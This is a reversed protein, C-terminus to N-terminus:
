MMWKMIEHSYFRPDVTRMKLAGPRRPLNVGSMGWGIWSFPLWLAPHFPSQPKSITNALCFRWAMVFGSTNKSKQCSMQHLEWWSGGPAAAQNEHFSPKRQFPAINMPFSIILWWCRPYIHNHTLVRAGPHYRFYSTLPHQNKWIHYYYTKVWGWSIFICIPKCSVPWLLSSSICCHYGHDNPTYHYNNCM